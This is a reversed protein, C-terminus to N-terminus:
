YPHHHGDPGALHPHPHPHHHHGGWAHPHLHPHAHGPHVPEAPKAVPERPEGACAAIFLVMLRIM